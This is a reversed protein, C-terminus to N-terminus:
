CKTSQFDLEHFATLEKIHLDIRLSDPFIPITRSKIRVCNDARTKEWNFNINILAEAKLQVFFSGFLRVLLSVTGHFHFVFDIKWNFIFM